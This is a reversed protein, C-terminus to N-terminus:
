AHELIERLRSLLPPLDDQITQWVTELRASFYQHVIVHRMGRMQAWDIGPHRAAIEEPLSGAAEGIVMFRHLVADITRPDERLPEFSMGRTYNLIAEAAGLIDEARMRWDSPPM